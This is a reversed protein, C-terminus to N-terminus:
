SCAKRQFYTKLASSASSKASSRLPTERRVKAFVEGDEATLYQKQNSFTDIDFHSTITMPAPAAPRRQAISAPLRPRRTRTSSCASRTPFFIAIEPPPHQLKVLM